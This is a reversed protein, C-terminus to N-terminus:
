QQHKKRTNSAFLRTGRENRKSNKLEILFYKCYVFNNNIFQRVRYIKEAIFSLLEEIYSIKFVM